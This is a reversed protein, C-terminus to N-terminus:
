KYAIYKPGEDTSGVRIVILGDKSKSIFMENYKGDLIYGIYSKNDNLSYKKNSIIAKKGQILKSLDINDDNSKIQANELFNKIYSEKLLFETACINGDQYNIKFWKFFLFNNYEWNKISINRKKNYSYSEDYCMEEELEKLDESEVWDNSYSMMYLHNKYYFEIHPYICLFIGIIILIITLIILIIKKM